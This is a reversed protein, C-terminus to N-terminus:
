LVAESRSQLFWCMGRQVRLSRGYEIRIYLVPVSLGYKPEDDQITHGGVLVAGAEKM